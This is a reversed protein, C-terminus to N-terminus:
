KSVQEKCSPTAHYVNFAEGCPTLDRCWAILNRGLDPRFVLAITCLNHESKGLFTFVYPGSRCTLNTEIM